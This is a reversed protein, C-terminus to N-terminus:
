TDDSEGWTDELVIKGVMNGNIDRIELMADTIGQGGMVFTHANLHRFKAELIQFADIFDECDANGFEVEIKLGM